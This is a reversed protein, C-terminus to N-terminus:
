STRPDLQMRKGRQKWINDRFKMQGFLIRNSWQRMQDLNQKKWGEELHDPYRSGQCCAEARLTSNPEYGKFSVFVHRCRSHLDKPWAVLFHMSSSNKLSDPIHGSTNYLKVLLM